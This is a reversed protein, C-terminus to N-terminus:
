PQLYTGTGSAMACLEKYLASEIFRPYCSNEMIAYIKKQAGIFCTQSPYRLNQTISDKTHYDLNVEKPSSTKIFKEHIKRARSALKEPSRIKRFEECALWFELNEECFESKLFFRFATQGYKHSLLRDFSQAWQRVEEITPQIRQEPFTSIRDSSLHAM